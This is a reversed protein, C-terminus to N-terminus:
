CYTGGLKKALVRIDPFIMPVEKKYQSYDNFMRPFVIRDQFVILALDAGTFIIAAMFMNYSPFVMVLGTMTGVFPYLGPHRVLGYFGTTVLLQGTKSNLYTNRFPLNIFLIYLISVLSLVLLIWGPVTLWQILAVRSSTHIIEVISFGLALIGFSWLLPKVLSIKIISGFDTLFILLFGALGIFIYGM